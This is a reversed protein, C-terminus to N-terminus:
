ATTVALTAIVNANPDTFPDADYFTYSSGSVTYHDGSAISLADNGDLRLTLSSANGNDNVAQIAAASISVFERVGDKLSVTEMNDIKSSISALNVVSNATLGKISLTDNGAGGDARVFASLGQVVLTDDGGMGSLSNAGSNGTIINADNNGTGNISASGTLTLDEVNASLTFSISSLALDAGEGANETVVDGANDVHYVDDGAGGAMTDAGAGGDLVNAAANGTLVNDLANGTGDIASTGTLTLNEVNTTLTYTISSSVLDTGESANETVQDGINDVIYSDDGTGGIMTDAGIGGDLTDNGAMGTLTNSGANGTIVNALANGTGNIAATGTLTLNEVDGGLTYTIGSFVLDTGEGVNETVVDGADDVYYTDDGAGGVLTDAGARGDLADNGGLGYLVNNAANGTLVNDLTNGTGNIASTGTLTLNEVNASLTYTLGAYVLDTGGGANETVVDSADDVYYTDNGAGGIMTDAGAGGDIVNAAANGTITNALANGTGNIAATGTLTLNEVNASLTYSVSANITDTGANVAETVVDGANDVIYSDDGAGGVLTDAGAGGDLTNNAGNGTITNALTNGTGDIAATGTLTLNEVNASLTYGISSLILDTGEGANEVVVDGANDVVYSDNGAGGVMRDAGTGGDIVNNAANGTITNALANGTGDIAATGTLTLNEVNASLTYTVSAQATDTGENANETIADAANDVVYTDNGAGGLMTDAGAGGDIVNNAANGTITNSLANGTGNIASTGTLTLNEVNASLTYTVSSQVRDTGENANETVVDGAADVIYSDDGAGGILTDAGAGGDLTNNAANGTITNALANGAGDISSGGTLTLNEVNGTLTYSISSLVVDTGENANETVVDGADDVVYTDNGAGGAMTDAGAGGNITNNAANGTITNALTNGTGNIASTGTLTLNEVNASLTYSVAAQVIDTGENANEIIADAANDVIYSDNGAGGIMTDAGLGGDIVNGASNGTITNNLANGIGNIASTGTLMLNEVNQTLTYSISAKVLDTGEGANETVVDGANDIMYTDDGVGGALTDAGVGGDLVNNAGNGIITNALANGTGDIASAGTLTLNEVNAALVYSVSAQVLDNGENPAEVVTDGANDVIYTDDGAGGSLTDAGVGGDITNNGANGAITNALANGTANIASSGLLALNELNAGLTYSISAKVLDTGEGANETVADNVDDVVYTDNGAGGSMMDGGAGGDLVNDGTNGTLTNALANGAGDISATGALILNEVNATLVYGIASEVTDIGQSVGEIVVDGADDVVYTDDGAGGQLTDAGAGGDLRNALTNGVITNNLANGTGNITGTGILTLDEVNAGLAYSVSAYVHDRGENVNETVVDGADDVYYIDDGQGGTMIDAGGGGDIVNDGANGIITNALANGTGDISGVGTLTLDELNAGLTYSLSAEVLDTGEGTNETVIDGANDVVYTDDGAGGAMSDAGAGGDIVNGAANGIITNALANGTGDTAAAGTLTLNEVNNGLTYSVSSQVTDIGENANEVVIDGAEGVIYIDDGAGGVLRDAGAGGDLVNGAANGTLVNTLANGTADIASTGTLTLNEVNASLTHSVSAYVLDSGQGASEIVVDGANDVYYTDDGAGGTMTDAGAAGDIINNAANGIIANDLANGTANTASGTLTLNEVHAGLTYDISSVATDDGENANEVVVDGANDIVYVDDGAGGILTDAGAGGDLMNNGVNGVLTNALVNGRGDIDASGTLTLHEVDASLTFSVASSVRDIGEGAHETVVDGADDVYYLDDGAGGIMTDAGGRGDLVNNGGNGRLVNALANGTGDISNGGTLTLNEVNASLTYSVAANVGDTGEGANEVVVDGLNDVVFVDDGAGGIMTDAGAGGDITNNGANGTITNDLTNGTGLLAAGTLTLNEVNAGLGYDISARVLDTGGNAAEIVVDGIADVVYSDDGAGGTMTDAGAGGDLVNNGANGTLVNDAANGTGDINTLGTLTLNEVDASLIYSTSAFVADTGGGPQEVVADGADDVYYTDNGAGGILTDAGAGGDITNALANGTIENALANGTGAVAAGTLTLKEVHAGLAYDISASVLDTGEGANEIVVDGPNDVVYLDDGAGGILTDAGADGDLRNDGANGTLINDLANGTADISATGTLTLREVYASLTYGVSSLILDTGEGANEIVSDGPDDVVFTDDGIGGAMVDAGAGGDLVNALVNGTLHNDLANGTARVANTGTLVLDEIDAGLTYDIAASVLDVGEGAHEVVMDGIDDVKYSDDGLGGILTDAGAGGDLMNNGANGTIVNALANGTGGIDASGTLTLDEVNASLAFSVSALVIDHGEGPQEVVTDAANDVVYSDDGQAGILTDAGGGGDLVNDGANGTIVNALANGTGSLNATGTLTLNEVDASLMHSVSAIVTDNGEGPRESVVDGPDDVLYVDDGTGGIMTDAGAAGDLVNAAGNGTIVNDLANGTGDIPVLGVLTLNEVDSGLTYSISSQVVDIGEGPLEVVADGANDIVYRDDGAGGAMRDAGLGGDLVNDGANGTLVNDLANGTGALAAGTLTLMEVNAGLAYDISALVMDTGAPSQEVVVDGTDDVIYRDDGAGGAMTDAGAGGDLMNNGANGTLINDGTNGRANIDGVGTLTLNEVNDSLTYSIAARVIDTGGGPQEVITDAADDVLYTDDGAGGILTDAGAGGDIINDAGNGTIVNDSANGTADIAATGTLTLNEVDSGLTYSISAEVRDVGENPQEIVSDSANDVVYVDDGAGGIMVDAGAGGDLLNDGVNGTLRNDLVNGTGDIDASGDLTLDEVNASLSYTVSAKVLDIGDGSREVVMDAADDVIYTDNGAGGAMRDAGAAGDLLNDGSNGTLANDLANGTVAIHDAGTLSLAEVNASLTYSISSHITDMGEGPQEIVVDGPNDVIYSDDGTGGIMTDAGAGGDLLNDGGNGTLVNDLANGTGTLDDSGVLRLQEVNAALTYNISAEILDIGEGSKEIIVDDVNDVVYTDNGAGGILTDAGGGGDILNNGGNGTIVNALANGTGRLDGAGTLTLDEVNASLRYDVSALALDAGGDVAEILADGADDVVYTDDGGRGEMVDAGTGGDLLDDAASGHITDDGAGGDIHNSIGKLPLVFTYDTGQDSVYLDNPGSVNQAVMTVTRTFEVLNGRGDLATISLSFAYSTKETGTPYFIITDLSIDSSREGNSAPVDVTWVDGSRTANSLTVDKPLGTITYSTVQRVSDVQVQFLKAFGNGMRQPDDGYIVDNGSTGKIVEPAGQYRASPDVDSPSNGGSGYLTNGEVRTGVLNLLTVTGFSPAGEPAAAKVVVAAREAPTSFVQNSTVSVKPTWDIAELKRNAAEVAKQATDVPDQAPVAPPSASPAPSSPPSSSAPPAPAPEESAKNAHEHGSDPAAAAKFERVKDAFPAVPVDGGVGFTKVDKILAAASRVSGDAFQVDPADVSMAALGAGDLIVRDGNALVLVLDVDAVEVGAVAASPIDVKYKGAELHVVNNM